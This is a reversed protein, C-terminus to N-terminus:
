LKQYISHDGIAYFRVDGNDLFKFAVRIQYDVWFAWFERLRGHLRHTKLRADFPNIRFFQEKEEAKKQIARPLRRYRKAFEPSYFIQM